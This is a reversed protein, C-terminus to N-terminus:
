RTEADHSTSRLPYGYRRLMPLALVSAAVRDRAKLNARYEEDTRLQLEGKTYRNPNGGVLHKPGLHVTRDDIWDLGKSPEGVFSCIREVTARPAAMIDEYRLQLFRDDGHKKRLREAHANFFTWLATSRSASMREMEFKLDPLWKRRQWSYAVARPDRVLHLYYVDLDPVLRLVAAEAASKSSDVIVRAGTVSTIADHLNRVAAIYLDLERWGTPRGPEFDLLRGFAYRTRAATKQWKVVQRPDGAENPPFGFHARQVEGWVECEHFEHGCSCESGARTVRGWIKQLEGTSFFGDIEGLVNDLVTSGSRGWGVMFLVKHTTM